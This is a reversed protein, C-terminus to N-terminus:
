SGRDSSGGLRIMRALRSITGLISRDVENTVVIEDHESPIRYPESTDDLDDHITYRDRSPADGRGAPPQERIDEPPEERRSLQDNAVKILYLGILLWIFFPVADFIALGIDLLEAVGEPITPEEIGEESM